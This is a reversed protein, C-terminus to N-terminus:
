VDKGVDEGLYTGLSQSNAIHEEVLAFPGTLEGDLQELLSQCSSVQFLLNNRDTALLNRERLLDGTQTAIAEMTNQLKEYRADMKEVRLNQKVMKVSLEAELEEVRAQLADRQQRQEATSARQAKLESQLEEIRVQLGVRQKTQEATQTRQANLQDQLEEV